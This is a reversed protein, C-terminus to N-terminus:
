KNYHKYIKIAGYTIGIGVAVYFLRKNIGLIKNDVPVLEQKVVDKTGDIINKVGTATEKVANTIDELITRNAGRIETTPQGQADANVWALQGNMKYRANLFEDFSYGEPRARAYYEKEVEIWTKFPTDTKVNDKYIKSAKLM